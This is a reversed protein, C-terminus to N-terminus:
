GKWLSARGSCYLCEHNMPGTCQPCIEYTSERVSISPRSIEEVKVLRTAVYAPNTDFIVIAKEKSDADIAYEKVWAQVETVIFTDM